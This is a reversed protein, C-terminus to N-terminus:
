EINYQKRLYEEALDKTKNIYKSSGSVKIIGLNTLIKLFDSLDKHLVIICNAKCM